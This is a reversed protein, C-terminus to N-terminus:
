IFFIKKCRSIYPKKVFFWPRLVGGGTRYCLQLAFPSPDPSSRLAFFRAFLSPRLIPRLAFSRAFLELFFIQFNKLFITECCVISFKSLWWYNNFLSRMLIYKWRFKKFYLHIFQKTFIYNFIFSFTTSWFFYQRHTGFKLYVKAFISNAFVNSFFFCFFFNNITNGIKKWFNGFEFIPLNRRILLFFFLM